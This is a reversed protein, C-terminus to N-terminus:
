RLLTLQGKFIIRSQNNLELIYFYEGEMQEGGSWDNQYNLSRYIINGWRDFIKLTSGPYLELSQISFVDNIGDQNPTFVNPIFLNNSIKETTDIIQPECGGETIEISDIGTCGYQDTVIIYYKRPQTVRLNSKIAKFIPNNIRTSYWQKNYPTNPGYGPKALFNPKLISDVIFLTSREDEKVCLETDGKINIKVNLPAEPPHAEPTFDFVFESECNEDNIFTLKNKGVYTPNLTDSESVLVFGAIGFDFYWQWNGNGPSPPATLFSPMEECYPPLDLVFESKNRFFVSASDMTGACKYEDTAQVFYTGEKTAWLSDISHNFTVNNYTWKYNVKNNSSSIANLVPYPEQTPLCILVSDLSNMITILNSKLHIKSSSFQEPWYGCESELVNLDTGKKLIVYYDGEANLKKALNLQIVRTSQGVECIWSVNNVGISRAPVISSDMIRFESGDKSITNCRVRSYELSDPGFRISLVSDGCIATDPKPYIVDNKCTDAIWITIERTSFGIKKMVGTTTRRWENARIAVAFSPLLYSTTWPPPAPPYPNVVKSPIFSIVGSGDIDFGHSSYHPLPNTLSYPPWYPIDNLYYTSAIPTIPVPTGPTCRRTISDWYFERPNVLEYSISDLDYEIATQNIDYLIDECISYGLPTLITDTHNPFNPAYNSWFPSTNGTFDLNNLGAEIVITRDSHLNYINTEGPICFPTSSNRFYNNPRMQSTIFRWDDSYPNPHYDLLDITDQYWHEVYCLPDIGGCDLLVDSTPCPMSSWYLPYLVIPTVFISPHTFM